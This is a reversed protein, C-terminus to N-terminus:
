QSATTKGNAVSELYTLQVNNKDIDGKLGAAASAGSDYSVDSSSTRGHTTHLQIADILIRFVDLTNNPDLGEAAATARLTNKM